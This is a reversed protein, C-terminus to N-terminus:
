AGRAALAGATAERFFREYQARMERGGIEIPTQNEIRGRVLDFGAHPPGNHVLAAQWGERAFIELVRQPDCADSTIYAHHPWAEPLPLERLELERGDASGRLAAPWVEIASGDADGAYVLLNGHPHPMPIVRADLIEALARAVRQPDRAPVTFHHIRM